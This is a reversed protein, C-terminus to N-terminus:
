GCAPCCWSKSLVLLCHMDWSTLLECSLHWDFSEAENTPQLPCCHRAWPEFLDCGGICFSASLRAMSELPGRHAQGPPKVCRPAAAADATTCM